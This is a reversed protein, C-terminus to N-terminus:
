YINNDANYTVFKILKDRLYVYEFVKEKDEIMKTNNRNVYREAQITALDKFWPQKTVSPMKDIYEQTILISQTFFWRASYHPNIDLEFLIEM